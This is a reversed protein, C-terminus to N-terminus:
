PREKMKAEIQKKKGGKEKRKMEGGGWFKKQRHQASFIGALSVGGIDSLLSQYVTLAWLDLKKIALEAILTLALSQFRPTFPFFIVLMDLRKKVYGKRDKKEKEIKAARWKDEMKCIFGPSQFLWWTEILLACVPCSSRLPSPSTSCLYQLDDYFALDFTKQVSALNSACHLNGKAVLVHVSHWTYWVKSFDISKCVTIQM